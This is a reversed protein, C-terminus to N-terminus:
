LKYLVLKVNDSIEVFKLYEKGPKAAYLGDENSHFEVIFSEDPDSVLFMDEKYKIKNEM